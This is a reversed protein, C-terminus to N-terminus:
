WSHFLLCRFKPLLTYLKARAHLIGLKHIKVRSGLPNCVEVEDFYALVQLFKDDSFPHEAGQQGDCIDRLFGDASCHPLLV